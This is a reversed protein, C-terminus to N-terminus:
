SVAKFAKLFERADRKKNAPNCHFSNRLVWIPQWVGHVAMGLRSEQPFVGLLDLGAFLQQFRVPGYVRHANWLLQDQGCPVGIFVLGGPKVIDMLKRVTLLDGAPNLIDGYRGLGDHEISSYTFAYDFKEIDGRMFSSDFSDPTYTKIRSDESSISGFEVTTVDTSGYALLFSELWPNESGIVVGRKEAVIDPNADFLSFFPSNDYSFAPKRDRVDRIYQEVMRGTWISTLAEGGLYAQDFYFEGIPISGNMTFEDRLVDPIEKPAAGFRAALLNRPSMDCALWGRMTFDPYVHERVLQVNRGPM